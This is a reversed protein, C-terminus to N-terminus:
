NGKELVIRVQHPKGDDVLDITDGGVSQGDVTVRSTGQELKHPNEVVIQYTTSKYRYTLEFAPWQPSICPRVSLRNGALRFGLINELAVRLLWGASGTYWTWGGRGVHPRESYIDAVVVYPEVKYRETDDPTLTHNIPNLLDFLEVARKGMGLMTTALVVWTAAHTYQGGNERVGPVYGKIYGPNLRGKDFPPTFLLILKEKDKVLQEELAKMAQRARDPNAGGCIVAWSQVISDIRCEDNEASGLPTGDDFYARRYWKGDWANEEIAKRLSEVQNKCTEAWDRDNRSEAMPIFKKLCDILFWADWISEGKGGSGIRNMGDNWDGTGMLPMGHSGFKFGNKLARVCHEYVTGKEDTEQPLGYSEEQGPELLSARLYPQKEDLIATDGTTEVYHCTVFPLWLFDDSFRTRVGRGEPPHWWHQVDGELFQRGAARLIQARAEEPAGYVLAMVDQLQDRFGYAGGSQYFASRGWLRCSLVQYPLWRNVLVNLATNPTKVTVASLVNDWAQRIEALAAQARAPKRYRRVLQRVEGMTAAQGLMFVIEKEEGPELNFKGQLAVCPDLGAGVRGSLDKRSLAAPSSLAGNRGLFETRDATLTRPELNVDAFAVWSSFSPNFANRALLVGTEPDVETTIHMQTVDRVGGLVWEAYFTASLSRPENELNRLKLRIVKVPDQRPVFMLLVHHIGHNIQEFVTYGQGHRIVTPASSRIPLPTPTWVEGTSEDRLYIVEGPPDIVPDNNWPSLRNTQSNGIWTFSSGSESVLFGCQPNAVVNVWPAPTHVQTNSDLRIIYEKGDKTFGGWGNKYKQHPQNLYIT